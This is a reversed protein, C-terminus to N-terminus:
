AASSSRAPRARTSSGARPSGGLLRPVRIEGTDAHVKAEVFQAGFAHMAYKGTPPSVSGEAEDGDAPDTGFKDRFARRGRRGGLGM